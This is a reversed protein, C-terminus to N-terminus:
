QQSLPTGLALSLEALSAVQSVALNLQEACLQECSLLSSPAAILNASDADVEMRAPTSDNGATMLGAPSKCSVLQKTDHCGATDVASPLLGRKTMASETHISGDSAVLLASSGHPAGAAVPESNQPRGATCCGADGAALLGSVHGPEAGDFRQGDNCCAHCIPRNNESAYSSFHGVHVSTM